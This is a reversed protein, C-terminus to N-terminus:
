PKGPFQAVPMLEIATIGLDKLYKLKESIGEFTGEKSFSGTHLEYIILNEPSIGKWKNDSWVFSDTNVVQSLGHVGEPQSLSAPDPFNKEDNVIQYLDGPHIDPLGAGWYGYEQKELPLLKDKVSISISDAFPAWVLIRASNASTFTLGLTRKEISHLM